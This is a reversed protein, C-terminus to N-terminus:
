LSLLRRKEAQAMHLSPWKVTKDVPKADAGANRENQKATYEQRRALEQLVAYDDDPLMLQAKANQFSLSFSLL